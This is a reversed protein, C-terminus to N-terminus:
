WCSAWQSLTVLVGFQRRWVPKPRNFSHCGWFLAVL